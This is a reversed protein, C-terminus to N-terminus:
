GSKIPRDVFLCAVGCILPFFALANLTSNYSGLQDRAIGMVMPGFASSASLITASAGGIAGLHLRGFYRAWSIASVTRMMGFTFGLLVGFLISLGPLNLYPVMWLSIAHLFLGIANLTRLRVQLHIERGDYLPLYIGDVLTGTVLNTVAMTMAVPVYVLAALEASFGSDAFISVIHFTLGTGLMSISALGAIFVWYVPTRLAEQLTWNEEEELESETGGNKTEKAPDTSTDGDPLLSYEEPRNRYLGYGFSAMFVLLTIGLIIYTQRWGYTLVLWNLANPAVGMGILATFVGSIGLATGRRRVWWQNIVNNSVLALAGQGLMRLLAFGVGLMIWNRVTSMYLCALGFLIAIVVVMTRPGRRDILRGVYTLTLSGCLTGAAYLTSVWSRTIDLETIFKEIFISIGFTQGPATMIMGVAGSFLIIWGYYFPFRHVWAQEEKPRLNATAASAKESM